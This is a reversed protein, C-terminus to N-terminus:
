HRIRRDYGDVNTGIGPSPEWNSFPTGRTIRVVGVVGDEMGAILTECVIPIAHGDFEDRATGDFIGQEQCFIQRRLEWYGDLEYSARAIRFSFDPSIYQHFADFVMPVGSAGANLM